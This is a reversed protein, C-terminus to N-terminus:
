DIGGLTGGPFTDNGGRTDNPNNRVLSRIGWVFLIGAIVLAIGAVRFEIVTFLALLIASLILTKNRM